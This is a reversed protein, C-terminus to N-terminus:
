MDSALVAKVDFIIYGDSNGNNGSVTKLKLYGKHGDATIFAVVNGEEINVHTQSLDSVNNVIDIGEVNGFDVDTVKAMNTTNPLSVGNLYSDSPTEAPSILQNTFAKLDSFAYVFDILGENDSTINNVVYTQGNEVSFLSKNTGDAVAVEVEVDSYSTLNYSPEEVTIIFEKSATKGEKDTVIFDFGYKGPEQPASIVLSDQYSDKDIDENPFDGVPSADKLVEFKELNNDGKEALWHWRLTQGTEVTTNGDIYNGGFFNLTPGMSEGEEEECSTFVGFMAILAIGLLLKAKKM